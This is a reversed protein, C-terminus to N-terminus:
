KKQQKEWIAMREELSLIRGDEQVYQLVDKKWQKFRKYHYQLIDFEARQSQTLNEFYNKRAAKEEDTLAEMDKIDMEEIPKIKGKWFDNFTKVAVFYNVNSNDIMAVWSPLEQQQANAHLSM